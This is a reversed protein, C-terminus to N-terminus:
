DLVEPPSEDLWGAGDAGRWGEKHGSKRGVSFGTKGHLGAPM